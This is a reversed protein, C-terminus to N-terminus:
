SIGFAKWKSNQLCNSQIIKDRTNTRWIVIVKVSPIQIPVSLQFSSNEHFNCKYNSLERLLSLKNSIKIGERTMNNGERKRSILSERKDKTESMVIAKRATSACVDWQRSFNTGWKSCACEVPNRVCTSSHPLSLHAEIIESM